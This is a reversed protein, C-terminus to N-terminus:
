MTQITQLGTLLSFLKVDLGGARASELVETSPNGYITVEYPTGFKGFITMILDPLNSQHKLVAESDEYAERIECETGDSSLFWDAQLTRTDKEKVQNIYDAAAEKFEIIKGRPIKIKASVQIKSM